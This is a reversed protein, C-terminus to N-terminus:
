DVFIGIRKAPLQIETDATEIIPGEPLLDIGLAHALVNRVQLYIAKAIADEEEEYYRQMENFRHRLEDQDSYLRPNNERLLLLLRDYDNKQNM